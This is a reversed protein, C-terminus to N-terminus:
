YLNALRAAADKVSLWGDELGSIINHLEYISVESLFDLWEQESM